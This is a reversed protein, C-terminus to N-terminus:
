EQLVYFHQFQLPRPIHGKLTEEQAPKRVGSHRSWGRARAAPTRLSAPMLYKAPFGGYTMTVTGEGTVNHKIASPRTQVPRPTRTTTQSGSAAPPTAIRHAMVCPPFRRAPAMGAGDGLTASRKVISADRQM